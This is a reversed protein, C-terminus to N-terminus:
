AERRVKELTEVIRAFTTEIDGEAAVSHLLGRRRFEALMPETRGHYVALRRRITEPADDPRQVLAAGDDDCRGAVRPPRSAEHYVRACVPCTWRGALRRVLAEEGASLLVVADLRQGRRSLFDLLAVAQAQTRPFGDLLFGRESEPRSLREAVLDTVVEDPVLEGAELYGQALRGLPTEERIAERLLDGTSLHALGYRAAVRAAQTGKGAGPPGVLVVRM